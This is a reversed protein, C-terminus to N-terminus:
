LTIHRLFRVIFFMQIPYTENRAMRYKNSTSALYSLKSLDLIRYVKGYFEAAKDPDESWLEWHVVPCGM